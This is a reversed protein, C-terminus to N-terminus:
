QITSSWATTDGSEFGDSFVHLLDCITFREACFGSCQMDLGYAMVDDDLYDGVMIVHVGDDVLTTDLEASLADCDIGLSTGDPGFLELCPEGFGTDM